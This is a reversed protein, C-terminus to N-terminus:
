SFKAETSIANLFISLSVSGPNILDPTVATERHRFRSDVARRPRAGSGDAAAPLDQNNEQCVYELLEAGPMLDLVMEAVRVDAVHHGVRPDRIATAILDLPQPVPSQAIDRYLTPADSVRARRGGM